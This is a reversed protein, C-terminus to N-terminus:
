GSSSDVLRRFDDRWAESLGSLDQAVRLLNVEADGGFRLAYITVVSMSREPRQTLEIRDGATCRGPELVRLYFGPRGAQHFRKVFAPDRMKIGLKLCPTRPQTVELLVTGVRYRDGIHVQGSPLGQTTLNEGFAGPSLTQGALQERYWAYDEEDYAYVAKDIGGHARTPKITAKSAWIIFTRRGM